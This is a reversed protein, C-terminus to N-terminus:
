GSLSDLQNNIKGKFELFSEQLAVFADSLSIKSKTAQYEEALDVFDEFKKVAYNSIEKDHDMCTRQTIKKTTSHENFIDLFAKIKNMRYTLLSRRHNKNNDITWEKM